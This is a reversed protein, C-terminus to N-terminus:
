FLKGQQTPSSWFLIKRRMVLFDWQWTTQTEKQTMEVIELCAKATITTKTWLFNWAHTDQWWWKTFPCCKLFSVIATLELFDNVPITCICTQTHVHAHVCVWVWVCMCIYVCFFLIFYIWIKLIYSTLLINLGVFFDPFVYLFLPFCVLFSFM